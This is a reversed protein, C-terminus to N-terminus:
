AVGTEVKKKPRQPLLQLNTILLKKYKHFKRRQLMAETVAPTKTNRLVFSSGLVVILDAVDLDSIGFRFPASGAKKRFFVRFTATM